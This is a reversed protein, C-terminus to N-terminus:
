KLHSIHEVVESLEDIVQHLHSEDGSAQYARLAIIATAPHIVADMHSVAPGFHDLNDFDVGVAALAAGEHWAAEIEDLTMKSMAPASDAVLTMLAAHDANSAGFDRAGTVGIDVLTEQLSILHAVDVDGSNITSITEGVITKYRAKDFAMAGTAIMALTASLIIKPANM